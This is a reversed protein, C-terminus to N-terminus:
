GFFTGHRKPNIRSITQHESRFINISNVFSASNLRLGFKNNIESAGSFLGRTSIVIFLILSTFGYASFAKNQRHVHAPVM